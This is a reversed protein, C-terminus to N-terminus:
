FFSHFAVKTAMSQHLKSVTALSVKRSTRRAVYTFPGAGLRFCSVWPIILNFVGSHVIILSERFVWFCKLETNTTQKFIQKSHKQEKTRINM